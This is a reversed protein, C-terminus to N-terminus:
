GSIHGINNYTIAMRIKDDLETYIELAKKAYDLAEDLDGKEKLIQGINNYDIAMSNLDNLEESKKLSSKALSLDEDLNSKDRIILAKSDSKDEKTTM